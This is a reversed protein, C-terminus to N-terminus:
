TGVNLSYLNVISSFIENLLKLILITPVDVLSAITGIMLFKLTNDNRTYHVDWDFSFITKIPITFCVGDRLLFCM